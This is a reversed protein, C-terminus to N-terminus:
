NENQEAQVGAAYQSPTMGAIEKFRRSFYHISSYSLAEAIESFSYKKERIMEKARDIKMRQFYQMAGCGVRHRFLKQLSSESIFFKKQVDASSLEKEVNSALFECIQHLRVEDKKRRVTASAGAPDLRCLRTRRSLSILFAELRNSVMQESGFLADGRRRMERLGDKACFFAKDAEELAAALDAKERVSCLFKGDALDFLAESPSSFVIVAFSAAGDCPSIEHAGAPKHLFVCGQRLSEERNGGTILLDGKEAFILEWFTRLKNEFSFNAPRAFHRAFGLDSIVIERKLVIKRQEM